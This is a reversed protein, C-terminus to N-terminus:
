NWAKVETFQFWAKSLEWACNRRRQCGSVGSAMAKLPCQISILQWGFCYFKLVCSGTNEALAYVLKLYSHMFVSMYLQDWTYIDIPICSAMNLFISFIYDVWFQNLNRWGLEGFLFGTCRGACDQRHLSLSSVPTSGGVGWSFPTLAEIKVLFVPGNTWLIFVFFIPGTPPCHAPNWWSFICFFLTRLLFIMFNDVHVKQPGMNFRRLKKIDWLKMETSLRMPATQTLDGVVFHRNWVKGVM